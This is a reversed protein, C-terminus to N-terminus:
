KTSYNRLVVDDAARLQQRDNYIYVSRTITKKQLTGNNAHKSLYMTTVVTNRENNRDKFNTGTAVGKIKTAASATISVGYQTFRKLNCGTQPKSKM